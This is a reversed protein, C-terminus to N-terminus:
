AILCKFHRAFYGSTNFTILRVALQGVLLASFTADLIQLFLLAKVKILGHWDCSIFENTFVMNTILHVLHLIWHNLINHWRYGENRKVILYLVGLFQHLIIVQYYIVSLLVGIDFFIHQDFTFISHNSVSGLVDLM